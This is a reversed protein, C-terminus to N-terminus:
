PYVWEEFIESLDCQCAQELSDLVAQTDAIEWQYDQFYSVLAQLLLNEGIQEGVTYLFLPGRGYVIAGYEMSRFDKVPMGVPIDPDEVQALRGNWEDLRGDATNQDYVGQMYLYVAYQTLAEDVWPDSQQDNGVLNYFWQHALEHVVAIELISTNRYYTVNNEPDYLGMFIGVIGPYEIGLASMPSSIIDFETYPYQGFTENFFAMGAELYELATQQKTEMGPLAYSSITTEGVSATLVTFQSSGALFFDRVPGAAFVAQQRGDATSRSVLSGSAVLTMTEPASVSVRYFSMDNYTLDGNPAPVETYWGSDDYAPIMPYFTDLVLVEDLYSLLGYNGGMETPVQLTFDMSIVISQDEQLDDFLRVLLTTEDSILQTEAPTEDVLVNTVEIKGGNYNAFLRFIVRDLPVDEQNFYRVALHGIIPTNLDGPIQIDIQYISAQPLQALVQQSTSILNPSFITRDDWDTNQVPQSPPSPQPISTSTPAPTSTELIATPTPQHEGSNIQSCASTALLIILGTITFVQKM